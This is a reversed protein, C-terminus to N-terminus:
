KTERHHKGSTVGRQMFNEEQIEPCYETRTKRRGRRCTWGLSWLKEAAVQGWPCKEGLEPRWGKRTRCGTRSLDTQRNSLKVEM